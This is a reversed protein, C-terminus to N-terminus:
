ARRLFVAPPTSAADATLSSPEPSGLSYTQSNYYSGYTTTSGVAYYLISLATKPVAHFRIVGDCHVGIWYQVGRVFSLSASATKTGNTGCNIDGSDYISGTVPNGDIDADHITVRCQNGATTTAVYLAIQDVTITRLPIFPYWYCRNDVSNVQTLSDAVHMPVVYGGSAPLTSAISPKSLPRVTGGTDEAYLELDATNIAPEGSILESPHPVTGLTTNRRLQIAM